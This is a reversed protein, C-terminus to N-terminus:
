SNIAIERTTLFIQIFFHISTKPFSFIELAYKAINKNLVLHGIKSLFNSRLEDKGNM